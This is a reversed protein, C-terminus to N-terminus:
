LGAHTRRSLAAVGARDPRSTSSFARARLAVRRVAQPPGEAAKALAQSGGGAPPAGDAGVDGVATVSRFPQHTRSQTPPRVRGARRDFRHRHRRHSARRYGVGDDWRATHIADGDFTDLGPIDPTFPHHLVGTAAILFDAVLEAGDSTTIQWTSGDFSASGVETNLRLHDNLDHRDVVERLYRQIEAGPAFLGTWDPKPAFSFQYLQSPIDCTLGPYRNWHWVGGVDSGKELITFDNFGARQLTVATAIGAVGAGIIVVRPERKAAFPGVAALKRANYVALGSVAFEGLKSASPTPRPRSQEIDPM